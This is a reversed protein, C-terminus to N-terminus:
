YFIILVQKNVKVEGSYNLWQVKYPIPHKTTYLNLKEVLESNAVNIYSGGDIILSCVKNQGHCRTHFINKRQGESDDVKIHMKLARRVAVTEGKVPYGVCVVEVDELPSMNEEEDEEDTEVKNNAKM